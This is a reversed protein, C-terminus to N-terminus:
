KGEPDTVVFEDPSVLTIAVSPAYVNLVVPGYRLLTLSSAQTRTGVRAVTAAAPCVEEAFFLNDGLLCDAVRFRESNVINVTARNM